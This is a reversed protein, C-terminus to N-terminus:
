ARRRRALLGVLALGLLGLSSGSGGGASCGSVLESPSPDDPNGGAGPDDPNGGTGDGGGGGSTSLQVTIQATGVQEGSDYARTEVQHAGASLSPSTTFTFPASSLTEALAGDIWLEVRAVAGDDSASASVAFGPAVTAGDAPSTIAVTPITDTGAPGIRQMLFQYSNQNTGCEGQLGCQRSQYEGCSVSQDKFSQLGNYQLYTMPDSALLEHDAGFSHATEQGVVECITEADGGFADAFTFVISNPIVNCGITFPSVGGVNPDMGIVGPQTTVISEYHPVNGPDVDTVVVNFPAWMNRVCSMIQDWKAQTTSWAPVATTQSVLTSRNTRADNDGPSLTTGVHNMYIITQGAAALVGTSPLVQRVTQVGTPKEAVMWGQVPAVYPEPASEHSEALATAPLTLM